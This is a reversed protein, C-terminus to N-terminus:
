EIRFRYIKDGRSGIVVCDDVVVPSSEFNNGMTAKFLQEGTKGDLLYVNGMCDAVFVFLKDEENYFGAPSSWAYRQLNYEWLVEGTNRDLAVTKGHFGPINDCINTIIMGECDGHGMLPTSYMGGDFHKSGVNAIRCPFTTEWLMEGTLGNLKVFHANGKQGQKEMESCTYLYPVDDIEEVIISGDTDDHNDYHWVPKMTDLNICIIHGNNDGVYGYNRCVSMSSEIGASGSEKVGKLRLYAVLRLNGQERAFKYVTGNEGPRYLYGGAVIPSSDYAQWSRWAKPDKPHSHTIKHQFLDILVAGFPERAPIGHGVYVNAYEPDVSISGKICNGSDIGKRSAKGNDYNIFYVRRSLSGLIIERDTFDATLGPSKERFARMMTDSWHIFMPQGTWGSGGGWSSADAETKFEWVKVIRSPTGSVRGRVPMDRRQNGRFTYTGELGEYPDTLYELPGNGEPDVEELVWKLNNVSEFLTDPFRPIPKVALSDEGDASGGRGRNGCAIVSLAALAAFLLHRKM